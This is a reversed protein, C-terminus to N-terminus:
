GGATTLPASAEKFFDAVRRFPLARIANRAMVSSFDAQINGTATAAGCCELRFPVARHFATSQRPM